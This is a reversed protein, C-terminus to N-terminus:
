PKFHHAIDTLVISLQENSQMANMTISVTLEQEPWTAVLASGGSSFGGARITGDARKRFILGKIEDSLFDSLVAQNQVMAITHATALYGGAGFKCTLDHEVVQWSNGSVSEYPTAKTLINSNLNGGLPVIVREELVNSFNFNGAEEIVASLLVFGWSSYHRNEGPTFLLDDGIFIPLADLPKQCHGPNKAESPDKYHRIGSSHTALMFPTITDINNNGTNLHDGLPAYPDIEGKQMMNALLIVTWPKAVSFVPFLTNHTTPKAPKITALGGSHQFLTNGSKIVSISYGPALKLLTRGLRKKLKAISQNNNLSEDARVQRSMLGIVFVTTLTLLMVAKRTTILKM